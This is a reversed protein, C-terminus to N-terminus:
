HRDPDFPFNDVSDPFGDLDSDREGERDIFLLQFSIPLYTEFVVNNFESTPAASVSAAVSTTNTSPAYVTNVWVLGTFNGFQILRASFTLQFGSTTSTKTETCLVNFNGNFNYFDFMSNVEFAVVDNIGVQGSLSLLPIYRWLVQNDNRLVNVGLIPPNNSSIEEARYGQPMQFGLLPYGSHVFQQGPNQITPVETLPVPLANAYDWYLGAPGTANPCISSTFNEFPGQQQQNDDDSKSCSSTIVTAALILTYIKARM